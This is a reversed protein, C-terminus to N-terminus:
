PTEGPNTDPGPGPAPPRPTAYHRILVLAAERVDRTDLTGTGLARHILLGEFLATNLAGLKEPPFDTAVHGRVLEAFLSNSLRYAGNNLQACLAKDRSVHMTFELFIRSWDRDDIISELFDWIVHMAQDLSRAQGIRADREARYAALRAQVVDLFMEDKSQWHRYFSGKAYGAHRTIDAVSTADYGQAGILQTASAMLEQRTQLSKEQQKRAM